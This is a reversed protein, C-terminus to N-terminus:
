LLWDRAEGYRRRPRHGRRPSGREFAARAWDCPRGLLRRPTRGAVLPGVVWNSLTHTAALPTRRVLEATGATGKRAASRGLRRGDAECHTARPVVELTEVERCAACGREGTKVECCASYRAGATDAERRDTHQEVEVIAVERSAPPLTGIKNTL